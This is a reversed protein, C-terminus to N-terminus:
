LTRKVASPFGKRSGPVSPGHANIKIKKGGGANSGFSVGGQKTSNWGGSSDGTVLAMQESIGDGSPSPFAEGSKPPTQGDPECACEAADATQKGRLWALAAPMILIYGIIRLDSNQSRGYVILGIAVAVGLMGLKKM